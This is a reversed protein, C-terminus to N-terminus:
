VGQVDFTFTNTTFAGPTVERFELNLQISSLAVDNTVFLGITVGTAGPDVQKSEVVISNAAGASPVDIGAAVLVTCIFLLGSKRM